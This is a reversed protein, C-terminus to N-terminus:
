GFFFEHHVEWFKGNHKLLNISNNVFEVSFTKEQFQPWAQKFSQPRLDRFAVTMHPTFGKGGHTSHLINFNTQLMRTLRKQLDALEKNPNINLFIVKPPFAGFNNIQVKFPENELAFTDLSEVLAALKNETWKFPMQLTIHPPSKLAAKSEYNEAFYQKISTVERKIEEDSPIVAIFYLKEEKM